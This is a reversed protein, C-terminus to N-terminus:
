RRFRRGSVFSLDIRVIRDAEGDGHAWSRPPSAAM